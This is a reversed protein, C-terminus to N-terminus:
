RAVYVVCSVDGGAHFGVYTEDGDKFWNLGSTYPEWYSPDDSNSCFVQVPRVWAPTVEAERNGDEDALVAEYADWGELDPASSDGGQGGCAALSLVLVARCCTTSGHVVCLDRLNKM